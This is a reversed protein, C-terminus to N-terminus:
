VPSGLQKLLTSVVWRAERKLDANAFRVIRWGSQRLLADRIQDREVTHHHIKGDLEVILHASVCAFDAVYRDVPHQRRFKYNGLRRDRLLRWLLAESDTQNQRLLRANQAARSTPM